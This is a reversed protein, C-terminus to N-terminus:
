FTKEFIEHRKPTISSFRLPASKAGGGAHISNIGFGFKEIDLQDFYLTNDFINMVISPDNFLCKSNSSSNNLCSMSAGLTFLM